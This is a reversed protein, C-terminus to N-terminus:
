FAWKFQVPMLRTAFAATDGNFVIDFSVDSGLKVHKALDYQFGFVPIAVDGFAHSGNNFAVMAGIGAGVYLSFRPHSPFNFYYRFRGGFHVSDTGGVTGDFRGSISVHQTVFYEPEIDIDFAADLGKTGVFVGVGTGLQFQHKETSAQSLRCALLSFFVAAVTMWKKLLPSAYYM